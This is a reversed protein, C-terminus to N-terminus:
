HDYSLVRKLKWQQKELVWLHTFRASSGRKWRGNEQIFFTHRGHQIAGYLIKNEYLPYVQLSGKELERRVKNASECINNKVSAIFDEKGKTIGGKDHYFEIDDAIIDTYVGLKCKNFGEEFVLSDMAKLNKFMTTTDAVQAKTFTASFLIGILIFYKNM